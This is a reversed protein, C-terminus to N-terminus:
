EEDGSEDGGEDEIGSGDGRNSGENSAVLEARVAWYEGTKAVAREFSVEELM